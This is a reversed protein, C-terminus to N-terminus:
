ACETWAVAAPVAPIVVAVHKTLEVVRRALQQTILDAAKAFSGQMAPVEQVVIKAMLEATGQLWPVAPRRLIAMAMAQLAVMRSAALRPIEM